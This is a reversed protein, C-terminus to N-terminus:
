DPQFLTIDKKKKTEAGPAQYSVETNEQISEVKRKNANRYGLAQKRRGSLFKPKTASKKEVM